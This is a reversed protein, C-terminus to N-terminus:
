PENSNTNIDTQSTILHSRNTNAYTTDIDDLNIIKNRNNNNKM